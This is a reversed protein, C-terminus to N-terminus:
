VEALIHAVAALIIGNTNIDTYNQMPEQTSAFVGVSFGLGPIRAKDRIIEVLRDSYPHPYVAKWLYAAKSSILENTIRFEESSFASDRMITGIVWADPSDMDVRLGSYIFWPARNIPAESICRIEGTQEFWALQADFLADLMLQGPGDHGTEIARLAYPETSIAGVAAAKYLTSIETEAGNDPWDFLPDVKYGLFAFGPVVYDTCHSQTTDQWGGDRNTFLRGEETAQELTWSKLATRVDEKEILGQKVARALAIGFRGADCSDFGAVTTKLTQASFNSPPLRGRGLRNAPLSSLLKRIAEGAGEPMILGLAAAAGTANIQSAVDWLTIESNVRGSPGSAVTGAALGTDPYTYRDFYSWALAADDLLRTREAQDPKGARPPDSKRRRRLSWYWRIVPDSAMVRDLLGPVNHLRVMGLNQAEEFWRLLRARQPPSTVDQPSLRLVRDSEALTLQDFRAAAKLGLLGFRMRIDAALGNGGPAGVLVNAASEAAVPQDTAVICGALRAADTTPDAVCDGQSDAGTAVRSFPLGRAALAKAFTDIGADGHSTDLLLAVDRPVPAGGLLFLDRPLLALCGTRRLMEDLQGVVTESARALEAADLGAGRALSLHLVIGNERAQAMGALAAEFGPDFLDLLTGGAISLQDLGTRAIEVPASEKPRTIRIRFGASRFAILDSPPGDAPELYTIPFYPDYASSEGIVDALVRERLDHAARLHWFRQSQAFPHFTLVVELIDENGSASVSRKRIDSEIDLIDSLHSLAICAALKRQWFHELVSTTDGTNWNEPLDQLILIALGAGSAFLRQAPLLGIATTILFKRRSVKM